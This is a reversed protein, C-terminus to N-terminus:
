LLELAPFFCSSDGREGFFRGGAVRWFEWSAVVAEGCSEVGLGNAAWRLVRLGTQTGGVEYGEAPHVGRARSGM